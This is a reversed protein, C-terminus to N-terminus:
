YDQPPDCDLIETSEVTYTFGDNYDLVKVLGDRVYTVKGFLMGDTGVVWDGIKATWGTTSM